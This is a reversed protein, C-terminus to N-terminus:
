LSAPHTHTLSRSVILLSSAQPSLPSSPSCLSSPPPPYLFASLGMDRQLLLVQKLLSIRCIHVDQTGLGLHRRRQLTVETICVQGKLLGSGGRM